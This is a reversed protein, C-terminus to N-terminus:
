LKRPFPAESALRLRATGPGPLPEVPFGNAAATAIAGSRPSLLRKSLPVLSPARSVSGPQEAQQTWLMPFTLAVRGAGAWPSPEPSKAPSDDQGSDRSSSASQSQKNTEKNAQKNTKLKGIDLGRFRAAEGWKGMETKDRSTSSRVGGRTEKGEKEEEKRKRRGGNEASLVYLGHHDFNDCLGSPKQIGAGEAGSEM